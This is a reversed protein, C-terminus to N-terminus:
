VKRESHLMGAMGLFCVDRGEELCKIHTHVIRRVVVSLRLQTLCKGNGLLLVNSGRVDRLPCYALGSIQRGAQTRTGAGEGSCM